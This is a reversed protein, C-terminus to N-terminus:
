LEFKVPDFHGLESVLSNYQGLPDPDSFDIVYILCVCRQIHRLFDIGLGRNRHADPILGPIDAVLFTFCHM